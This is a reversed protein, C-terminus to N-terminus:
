IRLSKLFAYKLCLVHKKMLYRHINYIDGINTSTYDVAFDHIEGGFGRKKLMKLLGIM